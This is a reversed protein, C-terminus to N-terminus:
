RRSFEMDAVVPFHDSVMPHDCDRIGSSLVRVPQSAFIHDVKLRGDRQGRWFHLTTRRTEGAHRAHFTDVLHRAGGDAPGQLRLLAPNSEIANFDGLVVIPEQPHALSTIHRRMLEGAKLRSGQHKHDWHTNYLSFSRQSARDTLRQWIAMRPITNGWTASGPKHPTDSLWFVERESSPAEFRARLYFIGTYEGSRGGDDRAVGLFEYDPLSAWLDAVQGHMAEQVGIIDLAEERIMRVVHPMRTRWARAGTDSNNEYRVNFSMARLRLTGNEEIPVAKPPGLAREKRCSVAGLCLCAGLALSRTLWGIGSRKMVM